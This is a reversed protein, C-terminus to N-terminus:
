RAGGAVALAVAVVRTTEGKCVPCVYAPGRRKMRRGHCHPATHRSM